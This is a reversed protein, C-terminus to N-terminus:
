LKGERRLRTVEDLDDGLTPECFVRSRTAPRSIWALGGYCIAFALLCALALALPYWEPTNM